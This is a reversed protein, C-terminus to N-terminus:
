SPFNRVTSFITIVNILSSILTFPNTSVALIMPWAKDVLILKNNYTSVSSSLSSNICKLALMFQTLLSIFRWSKVRRAIVWCHWLVGMFATSSLSYNMARILDSIM